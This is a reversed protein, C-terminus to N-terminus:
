KRCDIKYIFYFSFSIIIMYLIFFAHFGFSSIIMGGALPFVAPLINGAGAFGTYLARNQSGSVELLLGNMTISYVSYIVGGLIFLYKLTAANGINFVTISLLLSLLVNSYLLWKYKVKKAAV